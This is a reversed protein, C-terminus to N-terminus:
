AARLLTGHANPTSASNAKAEAKNATQADDDKGAKSSAKSSDKASAHHKKSSRHHRAHKKRHRTFKGLALPKANSAAAETQPAAQSPSTNGAVWAFAMAMVILAYRCGRLM